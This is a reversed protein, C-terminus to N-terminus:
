SFYHHPFVQAEEEEAVAAAWHYELPGLNIWYGKDKLCHLIVDLYELVNHATDLFFCTVVVDFADKMEPKSYVEVFDGAAMRLPGFPPQDPKSQMAERMMEIPPIDPICVTRFRDNNRMNNTPFSCFPQIEFQRDHAHNMIFSSTMLMLYSSENGEVSYGRSSLELTLRGLGAGPILILATQINNNNNNNNNNNDNNEYLRCVEEVIKGYCLARETQGETSYDRVLNKLLYQVRPHDARANRLLKLASTQEVYMKVADIVGEMHTGGHEVCRLVEFLFNQNESVAALHQAM